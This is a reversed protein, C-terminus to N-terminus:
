YVVGTYWKLIEWEVMQYMTTSKMRKHLKTEVKLSQCINFQKECSLLNAVELRSYSM